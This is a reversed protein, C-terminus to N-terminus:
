RSAPTPCYVLKAVLKEHGAIGDEVARLEDDNLPIEQRLRLLNAKAEISQAKSSEKPVYFDCRACAMRHPCQDFFDYSCYGHGLDYLKWPEDPPSGRRVVDQDILVEVARLNRAFYGADQYSKALKTPTIKTYHRTSEPSSHGLWEQLEFLSLPEKANYLQSAITARARHSTIRGRADDLPVAAKKCLLPIVVDNIYHNSIGRGRHSFLRHVQEGTKPDLSSPQPPRMQEWLEVSRGVVGDVPKSFATGTKNVPVHIFCVPPEGSSNSASEWRICGVRLRLIESRRLGSFLWMTALARVLTAPYFHGDGLTDPDGPRSLDQDSLNLGAWVLKAWVADQIIRPDPGILCRVSRPTAFAQFPNFRVPIWGWEQCDRFFQRMATLSSAKSAAKYPQGIRIAPTAAGTTWQGITARDVAAVYSAAMERNWDAPELGCGTQALWRGANFLRYIVSMRSSPQLTTTKFWRECWERWIVPVGNLVRRHQISEKREIQGDRGLPKQLLGRRVLVYSLITLGRRTIKADADGYLRELTSAQLDSLQLSRSALMAEALACRLGMINGNRSYGWTTLDATMGDIVADFAETGFVKRALAPFALRGLCGLEQFGCFLYAVAILQQRANATVGHVRIYAYYDTGLLEFWVDTSFAWFSQEYRVMARILLCIVTTRITNKRKITNVAGLHDLVTELPRLLRQLAPRAAKHWGKGGERFRTVLIQMHHLEDPSLAHTRDYSEIDIL